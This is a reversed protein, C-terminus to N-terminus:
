APPAPGFLDDLSRMFGALDLPKTWYDDVGSARASRIDEPMANASLAICRIGATAPDGRLRRLVEHGDMDPLQMDLLILAPLEDRVMALGSAGDVASLFRLDPRRKVLESVIMLNVENDEIYLLSRSGSLRQTPLPNGLQFDRVQPPAAACRQLNIEFVSGEGPRSDVRVTGGMHMVAAQVITLGIGTGVISEREMGLRNFPEFVHRLQEETLGRGSDAVRLLLRDGNPEVSLRVHGGPRNYKIANSLLNILAQRLRVPEAMAWGDLPGLELRVGQERALLEVLPLSTHALPALAVPQLALPLEGSELSSLELVDDILALLHEGSAQVHEVRRRWTTPDPAADTPTEALLLQTFGLVANLPTRLEHSIRALFRSKAQSEHQALLREQRSTAANRADTIDWNIGIRRVTLGHEDRVPTSRSALWRVTGDSWVVRFETNSPADDAVASRMARRTAVRDDPHVWQAMEDLQVVRPAADMGRLRFMQEDWWGASADVDSEWTGIGAGRAALAARETAQRLREQTAHRETVDLMVGHLQRQGPPGSISSRTALRRLQGDPWHIRLDVDLLGEDRKMLLAMSDAIAARDAAHVHQQLYERLPPPAQEPPLGHLKRMQEDWHLRPNEGLQMSWVGVGAAATAMELRQALALAQQQQEFRDSLDLAVGLHGILRGQEDRQRVRRTLLYRWRGDPQRCRLGLDTPALDDLPAPRRQLRREAKLQGQLSALDDPHVQGTLASITLGQAQTPLGLLAWGQASTQLLGSAQDLQWIAVDALTIALHLKDQAEHAQRALQVSETDDLMMGMVREPAGDAGPLVQWLSRVHRLSGSPAMLRWRHSYSGPQNLSDRYSRQVGERDDVHALALAQALPLAGAQPPLGLFHWIQADWQREGGQLDHTWTGFRGLQQALALTEAAEDTELQLSLVRLGGRCQQSLRGRLCRGAASQSTWAQPALSQGSLLRAALAADLGLLEALPQGGCGATLLGTAAEFAANAGLLRGNDDTWAVPVALCDFAATDPPPRPTDEDPRPRAASM